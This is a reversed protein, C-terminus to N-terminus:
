NKAPGGRSRHRAANPSRSQTHSLLILIIISKGEEEVVAEESVACEMDGAVLGRARKQEASPSPEAPAAAAARKEEASPSEDAVPPEAPAAAKSHADQVYTVVSAGQPTRKKTSLAKEVVARPAPTLDAGSEGFSNFSADPSASPPKKTEVLRVKTNTRDGLVRVPPPPTPALM